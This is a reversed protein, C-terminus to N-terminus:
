VQRQETTIELLAAIEPNASMVKRMGQIAAEKDGAGYVDIRNLQAKDREPRQSEAPESLSEVLAQDPRPSSDAQCAMALLLLGILCPRSTNAGGPIGADKRSPGLATLLAGENVPHM